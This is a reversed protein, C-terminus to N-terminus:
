LIWKLILEWRLSSRGLLGKGESSGLVLRYANGREETYTRNWEWRM